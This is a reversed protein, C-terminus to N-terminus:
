AAPPPRVNLAFVVLRYKGSVPECRVASLFLFVPKPGSVSAIAAAPARTAVCVPCTLSESKSAHHHTVVAAASWVTLLLCLLAAIKPVSRM